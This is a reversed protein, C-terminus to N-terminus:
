RKPTWKHGCKACRNVTKNAGIFGTVISFGRAGTTIQTSHCKPCCIQNADNNQKQPRNIEYDRSSRFHYTEFVPPICQTNIMEDILKGITTETVHNCSKYLSDVLDTREEDSIFGQDNIREVIFERFESLDFRKGDIECINNETYQNTQPEIPYGCHICVTAKDSIDSGCEPCKILAM